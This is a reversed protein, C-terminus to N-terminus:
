RPADAPATVYLYHARRTGRNIVRHLTRAPLWACQGAKLLRRRVAGSPGRVEVRVAGRLALLLEERARTSHWEM